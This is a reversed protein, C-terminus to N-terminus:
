AMRCSVSGLAGLDAHIFDGSGIPVMPGLAGSLIVEGALLGIGREALTRALWFAARLPHGLCAAGTGV